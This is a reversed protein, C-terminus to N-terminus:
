LGSQEWRPLNDKDLPLYERKVGPEKFFEDVGPSKVDGVGFFTKPGLILLTDTLENNRRELGVAITSCRNKSTKWQVLHWGQYIGSTVTESIVIETASAPISIAEPVLDAGNLTHYVRVGSIESGTFDFHFGDKYSRTEGQAQESQIGSIRTLWTGTLVARVAVSDPIPQFDYGCVKKGPAPGQTPTPTPNPQETTPTPTPQDSRVIDTCIERFVTERTSKACYNNLADDKLAECQQATTSGTVKGTSCGNESFEYEWAESKASPGDDDSSLIGCATFFLVPFALLIKM